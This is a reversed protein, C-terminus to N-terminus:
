LNVAEAAAIDAPTVEGAKANLRSDRATLGTMLFQNWICVAVNKEEKFRM